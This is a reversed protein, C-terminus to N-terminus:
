AAMVREALTEYSEMERNVFQDFTAPDWIEIHDLAGIILARDKIGAFEMLPKPLVIRGQRDLTVEEAWRLLQRVFNRAERQYLNLSMMQEEIEEWRDLPYLFICQEFGRTATFTGKAEPKLVARMKAPIAVRGKEDVSYEAQGKFGAM